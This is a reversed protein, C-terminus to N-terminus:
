TGAAHVRHDVEGVARGPLVRLLAVRADIARVDLRALEDRARDRRDGPRAGFAVQGLWRWRGRPGETVASGCGQLRAKAECAGRPGYRRIVAACASLQSARPKKTSSPANSAAVTARTTSSIAGKSAFDSAKRRLCGPPRKAIARASSIVKVVCRTAREGNRRS